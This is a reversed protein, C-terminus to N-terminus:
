RGDKPCVSFRLRCVGACNFYGVVRTSFTPMSADVGDTCEALQWSNKRGVAGLLGRVYDRTRRRAKVRTGPTRRYM